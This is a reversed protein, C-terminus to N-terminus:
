RPRPPKGTDSADHLQNSYNILYRIGFAAGVLCAVIVVVLVITLPKRANQKSM